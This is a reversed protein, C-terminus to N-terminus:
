LSPLDNVAIVSFKDLGEIYANAVKIEDDYDEILLTKAKRFAVSPDYRVCSRVLSLAERSTYQEHYM